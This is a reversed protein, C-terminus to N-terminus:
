KQNTLKDDFSVINVNYCQRSKILYFDFYRDGVNVLNKWCCRRTVNLCQMVFGRVYFNCSANIIEQNTKRVFLFRYAISIFYDVPNSCPDVPILLLPEKLGKLTGDVARKRSIKPRKSIKALFHCYKASIFQSCIRIYYLKSWSVKIDYLVARARENSIDPEVMVDHGIVDCTRAFHTMKPTLCASDGSNQFVSLNAYLKVWTTHKRSSNAQSYPPKSSVIWGEYFELATQLQMKPLFELKKSMNHSLVESHTM